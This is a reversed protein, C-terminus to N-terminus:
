RSISNDLRSADVGDSAHRHSCVHSLSRHSTVDTPTVIVLNASADNANAHGARRIAPIVRRVDRSRIHLRRRVVVVSRHSDMVQYENATSRGCLRVNSASGKEDHSGKLPYDIVSTLM